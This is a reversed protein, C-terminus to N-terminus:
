NASKCVSGHVDELSHLTIANCQMAFSNGVQKSISACCLNQSYSLSYSFLGQIGERSTHSDEEHCPITQELLSM